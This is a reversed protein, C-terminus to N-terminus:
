TRSRSCAAASPASLARTLGSLCLSRHVRLTRLTLRGIVDTMSGGRRRTVRTLLKTATRRFAIGVEPGGATVM